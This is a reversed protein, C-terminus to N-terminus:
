PCAEAPRRRERREPYKKSFLPTSMSAAYFYQAGFESRFKPSPCLNPCVESVRRRRNIDEDFAEACAFPQDIESLLLLNFPNKLFM